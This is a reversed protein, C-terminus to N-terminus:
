LARSILEKMIESTGGYIRQVRADTYLRGILYESMFGYGGHLQLCEDTVRGQMESLWLKAMAAGDVGLEGAAHRVICQDVFAWGVALQTKMEALKFRSNQFDAIPKGFAKRQRVYDLTIDFARQAAAAAGVALSLREQPLEQMLQIFGEGLGGLLNTAPVRVDDFFLESTDQGKLGIKKLNRGRSFGDRGAEVLFLSIGRAKEAPDTKAVVIILDACQGNSIFTKTGNILYDDGDAIATTRIAQLDSGTGPETMAIAAVTQGSVMRPLWTEKQAVSGYNAIYGCCIDSHVSVGVLGSAGTYAFEEAVIANYYFDGGVGGYEEAVQPCLLGQDGARPWFTDPLQGLDDWAESNPEIERACFKKVAARFIRHEENYIPRNEM